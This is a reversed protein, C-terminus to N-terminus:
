ILGVINAANIYVTNGDQLARYEDVLLSSPNGGYGQMAYWTSVSYNNPNPIVKIAIADASGLSSYTVGPLVFFSVCFVFIVFVFYKFM